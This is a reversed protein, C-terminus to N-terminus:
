KLPGVKCNPLEAQLKNEAAKSAPLGGEKNPSDDWLEFTLSRLRPLSKLTKLWDGDLEFYDLQVTELSPHGALPLASVGPSCRLYLQKLKPCSAIFRMTGDTTGSHVRLEELTSIAGLREFFGNPDCYELRLVRLKTFAKVRVWRPDTLQRDFIWLEDLKAVCQPDNALAELVDCDDIVISRAEGQKFERVAADIREKANRSMASVVVAVLAACFAVIAVFTILFRWNLLRRM